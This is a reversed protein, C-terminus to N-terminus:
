RAFRLTTPVRGAAGFRAIQVGIATLHHPILGARVLRLTQAVSAETRARTRPRACRGAVRGTAIVCATAILNAQDIREAAKIVPVILARFFGSPHAGSRRDRPPLNDYAGRSASIRNPIREDVRPKVLPVALEIAQFSSGPRSTDSHSVSGFRSRAPM